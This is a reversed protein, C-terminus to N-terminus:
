REPALLGGGNPTPLFPGFTKVVNGCHLARLLIARLPSLCELTRSLSLEGMACKGWGLTRPTRASFGSSPLGNKTSGLAGPECAAYGGRHALVPQNDSLGPLRRVGRHTPRHLWLLAEPLQIAASVLCLSGAKATPYRVRCCGIRVVRVVPQASCKVGIVPSRYRRKGAVCSLEGCLGVCWTHTRKLAFTLRHFPPLPLRRRADV